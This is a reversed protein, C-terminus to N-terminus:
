EGFAAYYYSNGASSVKWYPLATDQGAGAYSTRDVLYILELDDIEGSVSELSKLLATYAPLIDISINTEQIAEIYNSSRIGLVEIPLDEYMTRALGGPISGEKFRLTVVKVSQRKEPVACVVDIGKKELYEITTDTAREIEIAAKREQSVYVGTLILDVIMLAAILISKARSWDM